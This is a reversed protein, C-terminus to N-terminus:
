APGHYNLAAAIQTMEARWQAKHDGSEYRNKWFCSGYLHVPNGLPGNNQMFDAFGVAKATNGPTIHFGYLCQDTLLVVGICGGLNPFGIVLSDFGVEDEVLFKPM